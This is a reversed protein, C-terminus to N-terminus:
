HCAIGLRRVSKQQKYYNVKKYALRYDPLERSSSKMSSMESHKSICLLVVHGDRLVLWVTWIIVVNGKIANM